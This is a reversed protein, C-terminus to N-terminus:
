SLDSLQLSSLMEMDTASNGERSASAAYTSFGEACMLQHRRAAFSRWYREPGDEASAASAVNLLPGSVRDHKVWERQVKRKTQRPCPDNSFCITSYAEITGLLLFSYRGPSPGTCSASIM